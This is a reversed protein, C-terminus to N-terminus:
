EYNIVDNKLRQNFMLREPVGRLVLERQLLM